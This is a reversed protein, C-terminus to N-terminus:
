QHTMWNRAWKKREPRSNKISSPGDYTLQTYCADRCASRGRVADDRRTVPIRPRPRKCLVTARSGTECYWRTWDRSGAKGAVIRDFVHTLRDQLDVEDLTGTQILSGITTWHRATAALLM